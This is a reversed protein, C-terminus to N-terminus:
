FDAHGAARESINEEAGSAELVASPLTERPESRNAGQDLSRQPLSAAASPPQQYDLAQDRPAENRGPDVALYFGCFEISKL